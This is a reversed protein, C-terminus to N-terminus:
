PGSRRKAILTVFIAILQGAEDKLPAIAAPKFYEELELLEMWYLAEDAERLCEGLKSVHEAESRGRQAERYNAGVSGGARLMQGGWVQAVQDRAPLTRYARAVRRAFERM